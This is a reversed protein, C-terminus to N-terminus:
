SAGRDTVLGISPWWGGVVKWKPAAVALTVDHGSTVVAIPVGKFSSVVGNVAVRAAAKVPKRKRLVSAASPSSAVAGGYYLPQIIASLAAPVGTATFPAPTAVAKTTPAAPTTKAVTPSSSCGTVALAATLVTAIGVPLARRSLPLWFPFM